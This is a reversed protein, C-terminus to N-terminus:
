EVRDERDLADLLLQRSYIKQNQILDINYGENVANEWVELVSEARDYITKCREEHGLNRYYFRLKEDWVVAVGPIGYSTAIIHSHLRFSILSSFSTIQRILETPEQACECLHEEKSRGIKKLIYAAYSYDNIAGNCFMKWQIGHSDLEKILRCWFGTIKKLPAHNSYMVGLGVTKSSLVSTVQYVERTWLAPDYTKMVQKRHNVYMDEIQKQDDRTSIMKVHDKLLCGSLEKRIKSSVSIGVGCANFYVPTGIKDFCKLFGTIDLSLWDM